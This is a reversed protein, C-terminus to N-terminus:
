PELQRRFRNSAVTMGQRATALGVVLTFLLVLRAANWDDSDGFFIQLNWRVAGWSFGWSFGRLCGAIGIWVVSAAAATLPVLIELRDLAKGARLAARAVVMGVIFAVLANLVGYLLACLLPRSDSNWYIPAVLLLWAYQVGPAMLVVTAVLPHRAPFVNNTSEGPQQDAPVIHQWRGDRFMVHAVGHGILMGFLIGPVPMLNGPLNVYMMYWEPLTVIALFVKPGQLHTQTALSVVLTQLYAQLPALLALWCVPWVPQCSRRRLVTLWCGIGVSLLGTTVWLANTLYQGVVLSRSATIAIAVAVLVVGHGLMLVMGAILPHKGAFDTM